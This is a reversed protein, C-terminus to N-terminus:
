ARCLETRKSLEEFANLFLSEAMEPAVPWFHRPCPKGGSPWFLETEMECVQKDIEKVQDPWPYKLNFKAAILIEFKSEVDSYVSGLILKLPRWVDGVYAEAADHLLGEMAFNAPCRKAVEISHQAVNWGSCHGGFRVIRSLAFAIDDLRIDNPDPNLLDIQQGSRTRAKMSPTM